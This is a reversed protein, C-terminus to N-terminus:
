LVIFNLHCQMKYLQPQWDVIIIRVSVMIQFAAGILWGTNEVNNNQFPLVCLLKHM